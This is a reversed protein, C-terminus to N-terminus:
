GTVPTLNYVRSALQSARRLDGSRLAERVDDLRYPDDMSLYPAWGGDTEILHVDVEAVFDPADCSRGAACRCDARRGHSRWDGHRSVWTWGEDRTTGLIVLV